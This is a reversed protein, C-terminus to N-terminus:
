STEQPINIKAWSGDSRQQSFLYDAGHAVAPHKHDFGLYGLRTLVQSTVQLKGGPINGELVTTNWSGDPEQHALLETVLPDNERMAVLEGVEADDDSRKLLDRLVLLRLCPSPDALLLPIWTM